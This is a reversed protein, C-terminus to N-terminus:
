WISLGYRKSEWCCYAIVDKHDVEVNVKSTILLSVTTSSSISHRTLSFLSIVYCPEKMLELWPGKNTPSPKNFQSQPVQTHSICINASLAAKLIHLKWRVTSILYKLLSHCQMLFIAKLLIGDGVPPVANRCLDPTLPLTCLWSNQQVFTRLM